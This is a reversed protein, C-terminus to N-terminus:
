KHYIENEPGGKIKKTTYATITTNTYEDVCETVVKTYAHKGTQLTKAKYYDERNAHEPNQYIYDPSNLTSEIISPTIETHGHPQIHGYYNSSSVTITKGRPDKTSLPLKGM